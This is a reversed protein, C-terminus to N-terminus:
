EKATWKFTKIDEKLGLLKTLITDKAQEASQPPGELDTPTRRSTKPSDETRPQITPTTPEYIEEDGPESASKRIDPYSEKLKEM